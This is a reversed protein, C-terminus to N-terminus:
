LKSFDKMPVVEGSSGNKEYKKYVSDAGLLSGFLVIAM